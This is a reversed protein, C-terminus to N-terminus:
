ESVKNREKAMEVAQPTKNEIKEQLKDSMNSIWNQNLVNNKFHAVIRDDIIQKLESAQKKIFEIAKVVNTLFDDSQLDFFLESFRETQKELDEFADTYSKILKVTQTDSKFYNLIVYCKFAIKEIESFNELVKDRYRRIDARRDFIEESSDKSDKFSSYMLDLHDLFSDIKQVFFQFLALVKKAKIKEDDTIEYNLQLSYSRKFM